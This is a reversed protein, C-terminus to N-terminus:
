DAVRADAYRQIFDASLRQPFAPDLQAAQILVAGVEASKAAGMSVLMVTTPGFDNKDIKEQPPIVALSATSSPAKTVLLARAAVELEAFGVDSISRSLTEGYRMEHKTKWDVLM